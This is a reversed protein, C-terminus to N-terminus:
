DCRYLFCGESVLNSGKVDKLKLQLPENTLNPVQLPIGGQRVFNIWTASLVM